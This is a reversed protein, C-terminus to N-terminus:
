PGSVRPIVDQAFITMQEELEEWCNELNKFAPVLLINEVGAEVHECLQEACSKADGVVSCDATCKSWEPIDCYKLVYERATSGANSDSSCYAPVMNANTLEEPNRGADQAFKQVRGWDERFSEATYFYNLWGDSSTAVRRLVTDVYGGMWIPPHPKQIPKPEMSTHNFHYPEITATIDDEIWLKKMIMLNQEVRKGRGKFPVACADFEKKYWGSAVGLILRGNSLHDLTSVEKALIVPNRIALILVSTGIRIKKTVAAVGALAILSYYIPFVKRSGLIIHDWVWISDYGLKEAVKAHDLLKPFNLEEGKGMLSQLAVGFNVKRVM